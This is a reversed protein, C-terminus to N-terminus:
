VSKEPECGESKGGFRDHLLLSLMIGDVNPSAVIERELGSRCILVTEIFELPETNAKGQPIANEAKVLFVKQDCLAPLPYIAGMLTWHDSSYGTEELLERKAAGIPDEDNGQRGGPCSLVFDRVPFRYERVLVVEGKPTEALVAVANGGTLLTEIPFSSGDPHEFTEKVLGIFGEYLVERHKRKPLKM